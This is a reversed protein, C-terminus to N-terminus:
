ETAMHPVPAPEPTTLPKIFPRPGELATYMIPAHIFSDNIDTQAVFLCMDSKSPDVARRAADRMGENPWIFLVRWDQADPFIKRFHNNMGLYSPSKKAWCRRPTDTGRELEGFYVRRFENVSVQFAFDPVCVIRKSENQSVVTYLRFRKEPEKADSIVDHEFYVPGLQANSQAAFAEHIEHLVESVEVYHAFQTWNNTNPPADLILSADGTRTALVCCGAETPTWVPSSSTMLPNTVEARFRRALGAAQLKRLVDRTISGDKDTPVCWRRIQSTTVFKFTRLILLIAIARPTIIM